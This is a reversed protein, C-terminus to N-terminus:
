IGVSAWGAAKAAKLAVAWLLVLGLGWALWLLPDSSGVPVVVAAAATSSRRRRPTGSPAGRSRPSPKATPKPSPPQPFHPPAAAAELPPPHAPGTEVSEPELAALAPAAEQAALAGASRIGAVGTLSMPPPAELAQGAAAGVSPPTTSGKGAESGADGPSPQKPPALPPPAHCHLQAIVDAYKSSSKKIKSSGSGEEAAGAACDDAAESGEDDEEEPLLELCNGCTACCFSASAKALRRREEPGYDLAGVAGGGETPLFSVLAELILRVGWAPQWEEPHYASISLCIKKGVEFRGNPTLFIINPPKMPYESPLLIRGHYVGGEFDTGKSPRPPLCLLHTLLPFAVHLTAGVKTGLM